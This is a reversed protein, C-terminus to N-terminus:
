GSCRVPVRTFDESVEEKEGGRRERGEREGGGRREEEESGEWEEGEGDRRKWLM